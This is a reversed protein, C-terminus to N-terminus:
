TFFKIRLKEILLNIIIPTLMPHILSDFEDIILPTGMIKMYYVDILIKLLNQTGSSELYLELPESSDIKHFIKISLLERKKGIAEQYELEIKVIDYGISKFFSLIFSNLEEKFLENTLWTGIDEYTLANSNIRDISQSTFLFPVFFIKIKELTKTDDFKYFEALLSKKESLNNFIAEQINKDINVVIQGERDFLIEEGLFLKEDKIGIIEYQENSQFTVVYTFKRNDIVFDIGLQSDDNISSFKNKFYLPFYDSREDIIITFLAIIAKLVTTKGSANAGYLSIVKNYYEGNFEFLREPNNEINYPTAKFDITVENKISFFNKIRLSTIFAM